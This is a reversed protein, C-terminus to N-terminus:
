ITRGEGPRALRRKRDPKDGKDGLKASGAQPLAAVILGLYEEDEATLRAGAFTLYAQANANALAASPLDSEGIPRSAGLMVQEIHEADLESKKIANRLTALAPRLAEGEAAVLRKLLTRAGRLPKVVGEHVDRVRATLRAVDSRGLRAGELGLWLCCFLLNVDIGHRAQLALCADPVSAKAYLRLSFDWFPSQPIM